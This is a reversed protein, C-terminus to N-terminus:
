YPNHRRGYGGRGGGQNGGRYGGQNGGGRGGGRNGGRMWPAWQQTGGRGGGQNQAWGAWQAWYQGWQGNNGHGGGQNPGGWGRNGGMDGGYRDGGGYGGRQQMHYPDGGGFPGRQSFKEIRRQLNKNKSLEVPCMQGCIEAGDKFAELCKMAPTFKQYLVFAAASSRTKVVNVKVVDGHAKFVEEVDEKQAQSPIDKVYVTRHNREIEEDKIGADVARQETRTFGFFPRITYGNVPQNFIKDHGIAATLRDEFHLFCYGKNIHPEFDKVPTDGLLDFLNNKISEEQDPTFKDRPLRIFLKLKPDRPEDSSAM